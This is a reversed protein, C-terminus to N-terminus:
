RTYYVTRSRMSYQVRWHERQPVHSFNAAGGSSLNGHRVWENRLGRAAQAEAVVILLHYRRQLVQYDRDRCM